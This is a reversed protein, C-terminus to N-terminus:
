SRGCGLDLSSTEKFSWFSEKKLLMMRSWRVWLSDSNSILRWILKLCCVDNAEKLSRLGLGGEISWLVSSILNLRGAFSLYRATWTGIRNRIQDLLPSLNGTTLRRTVLPLGLYRVPLQGLGFPYHSVMLQRTGDSVGGTYLTTKEMSMKLGSRNAFLNLVNVIGDVSRVKGDTLIMLDDAFCLHTLGLTKCRPHYGFDRAGAAKDLMKSLVNM